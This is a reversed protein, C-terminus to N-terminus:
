QARFSLFLLSSFLFVESSTVHWNESNLACLGAGEVCEAWRHARATKGTWSRYLPLALAPHTLEVLVRLRARASGRSGTTLPVRNIYLAGSDEEREDDDDDDDDDDSGDDGDSSKSEECKEQNNNEEDM